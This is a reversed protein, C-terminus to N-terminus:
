KYGWSFRQKGLHYIPVAHYLWPYTHVRLWAMRWSLRLWVLMKLIAIWNELRTAAKTWIVRKTQYNSSLGDQQEYGFPELKGPKPSGASRKNADAQFASIFDNHILEIVYLGVLVPTMGGAQLQITLSIWCDIKFWSDLVLSLCIHENWKPIWWKGFIELLAQFSRGRKPFWPSDCWPSVLLCRGSRRTKEDGTSFFFNGCKQDQHTHDDWNPPTLAKEVVVRLFGSILFAWWFVKTLFRFKRLATHPPTQQSVRSIQCSSNQSGNCIRKDRERKAKSFIPPASDGLGPVECHPSRKTEALQQIKMFRRYRRMRRRRKMSCSVTFLGKWQVFESNPQPTQEVVEDFYHCIM